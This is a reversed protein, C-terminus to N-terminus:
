PLSHPVHSFVGHAFYRVHIVACKGVHGRLEELLREMEEREAQEFPEATRSTKRTRTEKEPGTPLNQSPAIHSSADGDIESNDKSRSSPEEVATMTDQSVQSGPAGYDGSESPM